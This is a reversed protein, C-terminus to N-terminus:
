AAVAFRRELRVTPRAIPYCCALFWLLVCGYLPSPLDTRSGEAALVQGALTMIETVGVVSALVTAMTLIAYLNMGPLLPVARPRVGVALPLMFMCYFLLVLWPANRFLQAPTALPRSFAQRALSFWVVVAAPGAGAITSASFAM